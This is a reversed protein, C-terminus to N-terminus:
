LECSSDFAQAHLEFSHSYSCKFLFRPIVTLARRFKDIAKSFDTSFDFATTSMIKVPMIELYLRYPELSPDYGRFTGLSELYDVGNGELIMYSDILLMDGCEPSPSPLSGSSFAHFPAVPDVSINGVLDASILITAVVDV